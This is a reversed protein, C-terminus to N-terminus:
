FVASEYRGLPDSFTVEYVGPIIDEILYYGNSGTVGSYEAFSVEIGEIPHGTLADTAQGYMNARDPPPPPPPPQEAGAKKLLLFLLGLGAVVGAGAAIKKKDADV